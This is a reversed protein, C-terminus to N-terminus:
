GNRMAEGVAQFAKDICEMFNSARVHGVSGDFLFPSGIGYSSLCWTCYHTISLTGETLENLFDIKRKLTELNM